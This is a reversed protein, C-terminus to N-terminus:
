LVLDASAQQDPLAIRIVLNSLLEARATIPYRSATVCGDVKAVHWPGELVSQMFREVQQESWEWAEQFNVIDPQLAKLYRKFHDPRSAPGTYLVNHSLIRIDQKEQRQLNTPVLPPVGERLRYNLLGKDPVRDGGQTEEIYFHVDPDGIVRVSKDFQPRVSYPVAIEFTSSSHTPAVFMGVENLSLPAQMGNECILALKSGLHIELDHCPPAADALGERTTGPQNEPRPGADIYIRVDNGAAAFAENQWITERELDIKLYFYEKDSSVTIESFDIEGLAVDDVPDTAVPTLGAWDDFHGDLLIVANSRHDESTEEQLPQTKCALLIFPLYLCVFVRKM